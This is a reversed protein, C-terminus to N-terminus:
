LILPRVITALSLKELAVEEARALKPFVREQGHSATGRRREMRAVTAAPHPCLSATRDCGRRTTRLSPEKRRALLARTRIGVRASSKRWICTVLYLTLCTDVQTDMVRPSYLM